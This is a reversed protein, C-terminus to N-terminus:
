NKVGPSFDCVSGPSVTVDRRPEGRLRHLLGVAADALCAGARPGYVAACTVYAPREYDEPTVFYGLYANSVGALIVHTFLGRARRKVELGLATQLEGPITVWATEGLAVATMEAEAPFVRGLPVALLRPMWRGTCNRVSLWPSPLAVQTGWIELSGAAAPAARDWGSRVAAALERGIRAVAAEGHGAPSVDGVAGNVFLVPVGLQKELAASAAGMVDGSFHLNRPGLVTGHIAYNWVLAIPAGAPTALKLVVIDHDLERGLRSRTIAPATVNVAGVLARVRAGEARRVAEVVGDLLADRVATDLRDLALWGMVTSDIFAGPGSHTHSASVIVTPTQGVGASALRRTVERTFARDVAILDVAIWVVRRPAVELVLARATITDRVGEAPKFWFAHPSRGLVDPVLLRRAVAGYGALPTGTPVRLAVTAAGARLTEGRPAVPTQRPGGQAPGAGAWALCLVLALGVVARASM